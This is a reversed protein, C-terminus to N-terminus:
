EFTAFVPAHDSPRERKRPELDITFERCRGALAPSVLIHDIRLGRNRRFAAARYDWWTFRNGEPPALAFADELGLALLSQLAEREPVSCLVKGEWEAPDHVDESGPAINFDGVVALKEHQRIEDALWDRLKTLWHLKYAYKDSGVESGNPVYLNIFRLEGITVALVRRQPDDLGPIDTIFDTMPERAVVAVGNYTRQGSFAVHYGLERIADAPFNEDTLKTEQIGLLDPQAAALWDSVHELRVKLSNVNWSALRLSM